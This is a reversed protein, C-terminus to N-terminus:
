PTFRLGKQLNKVSRKWQPFQEENESWLEFLESDEQLVRKLGRQALKVLSSDASIQNARLWSEAKEPLQVDFDPNLSAVIAAAAVAEQGFDVELYEEETLVIEFTNRLPTADSYEQLTGLYDLAGDNDFYTADWAGM